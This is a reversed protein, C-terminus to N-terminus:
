SVQRDITQESYIYGKAKLNAALRKEGENYSNSEIYAANDTILTAGADLAKIAEKITRDQQQKRLTENGRKGGISVFIVDNSSYNGSNVISSQNFRSEFEQRNSIDRGEKNRFIWGKPALVITKIGLKQAAKAGAEDFGTQGGTRISEIKTNLNPSEIVQKLLNYVFEDVQEQTNNRMNYIGM